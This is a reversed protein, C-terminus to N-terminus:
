IDLGSSLDNTLNIFESKAQTRTMNEMIIERLGLNNWFSDFIEYDNRQLAKQWELKFADLTM